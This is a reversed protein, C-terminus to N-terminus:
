HPMDDPHVSSSGNGGGFVVDEMPPTPVVTTGYNGITLILYQVGKVEDISSPRGLKTLKGNEFRLTINGWGEAIQEPTMASEVGPMVMYYEGKAEDYTFMSLTFPMGETPFAISYGGNSYLMWKGTDTNYSGCRYVGEYFFGCSGTKKGETMEEAYFVLEGNEHSIYDMAYGDLKEGNSFIMEAWATYNPFNGEIAAAFEEETVITRAETDPVPPTITGGETTGGETMGGETTGGETTGGDTTGGDTTGGDNGNPTEGGAPPIGSPGSSPEDCAALVGLLLCLILFIALFKKM